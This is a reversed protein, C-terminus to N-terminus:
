SPFFLLWDLPTGVAAEPRNTVGVYVHMCMHGYEGLLLYFVRAAMWRPNHPSVLSNFDPERNAQLELAVARYLDLVTLQRGLWPEGWQPM